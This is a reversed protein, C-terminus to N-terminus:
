SAASSTSSCARSTRTASCSRFAATVNETTAGGGVDLFNAPEGGYLKITDMTAMALGAGNVMCGINGDLAIYLPRVESAEIEKADEEALDRCSSSTTTASCRTPTSTSRRTSPSSRAMTPPSSRTSRPWPATTSPTSRRSGSWSTCRRGRRPRRPHRHGRRPDQRRVRRAGRRRTPRRSSRRPTKEAVEEIDMGGESSAMVVPCARRATSCSASTTSRPSTRQGGRDLGEQVLQGEPGTQPTKLMMGLIEEAAAHAEDASRVLKVGGKGRGGAHIQAKVVAVPSGLAEYAARAEDATDCVRGSPVALGAARFLEKAQYEHIKMPDIRPAGRAGHGAHLEARDLVRSPRRKPALLTTVIARTRRWVTATRLPAESACIPVRRPGMLGLGGDAARARGRGLGLRGKGCARLAVDQDVMFELGQDSGLGNAEGPPGASMRGWTCGALRSRRSPSRAWRTRAPKRGLVALMSSRM